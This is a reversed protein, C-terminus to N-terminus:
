TNATTSAASDASYARSRGDWVAAAWGGAGWILAVVYLGGAVFSLLAIGLRWLIAGLVFAGFIGGRGGLLRVGGATVAPIPGFFFGLLYLVALLVAVPIGVVTVAFALVAVPVVVVAGLGFALTRWPRLVIAGVARASTDRLLWLLLLGTFLFALFGMITAVTWWFDVFFSPRPSIRKFTGSIEADPSTDASRNSRYLLSGGVDAGAGVRLSSTAVDVNRGIAGDITGKVFRGHVDRGISGTLELRGGFAILDRAVTGSVRTTVAAVALDDGISGGPEVRIERAVGRVSGAVTGSITVTGNSAVLVDGEVNGTIRLSNAAIVLDGAVDGDIVGSGALAYADEDQVVGEPVIYIGSDFVDFAGPM